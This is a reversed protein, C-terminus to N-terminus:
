DHSLSRTGGIPASVNATRAWLVVRTRPWTCTARVIAVLLAVEVASGLIFYVWGEGICSAIIRVVYFLTVVVNL